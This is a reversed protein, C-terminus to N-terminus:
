KKLCKSVENEVLIPVNWFVNLLRTYTTFKWLVLREVLVPATLCYEHSNNTRQRSYLYSQQEIGFSNNAYTQGTRIKKCIFVCIFFYYFIYSESYFPLSENEKKKIKWDVDIPSKLHLMASNSNKSDPVFAYLLSQIYIFNFHLSPFIIYLKERHALM